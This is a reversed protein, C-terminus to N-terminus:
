DIKVGEKIKIFQCKPCEFHNEKIKILRVAKPYLGSYDNPCFICAQVFSKSSDQIDYDVVLIMNNAIAKQRDLEMADAARDLLDGVRGTPKYVASDHYGNGHGKMGKFKRAMNSGVRRKM